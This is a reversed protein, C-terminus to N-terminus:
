EEEGADEDLGNSLNYLKNVMDQHASASDRRSQGQYNEGAVLRSVGDAKTELFEVTADFRASIYTEDKGDFKSEPFVKLIVAKKIDSDSMDNKIEVGAKKAADHLVLKSAIAADIRKPDNLAEQAEKLEKEAKDARAKATDKEAEMTSLSTKNDAILKEAKDARSVAADFKEKMAVYAQVFGDPAEYEMGNDLRYKMEAEEDQKQNGDGKTIGSLMNVCVADGSDLHISNTFTITEDKGDLRIRAADGARAGSVLACHNYRIKRQICDYTMGCWVGTAEEIDCEYGMSLALKGNEIERIAESDTITLDNSVHFGDTYSSGSMAESPFKLGYNDVWDSPNNGLSGIQLAKANEPTVKEAPHNNVMPKLKMSELSDRAFVEEPLRLERRSTGDINRYAFVGVSTVIARGSLFGEPTKTFPSTMWRGPDISDYRKVAEAMSAGSCYFFGEAFVGIV